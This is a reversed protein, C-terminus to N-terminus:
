DCVSNQHVCKCGGVLERWWERRSREGVVGGEEEEM